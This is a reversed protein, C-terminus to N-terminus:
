NSILLCLFKIDGAQKSSRFFFFNKGSVPIFFVIYRIELYSSNLPM